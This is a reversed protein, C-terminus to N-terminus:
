SNIGKVVGDLIEKAFEMMVEFGFVECPCLDLSDLPYDKILGRCYLTEYCDQSVSVFPCAKEACELWETLKVREYLTLERLLEM